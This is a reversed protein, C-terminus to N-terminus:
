RWKLTKSEKDEKPPINGEPTYKLFKQVSRIKQHLIKSTNEKMKEAELQIGKQQQLHLNRPIYSPPQTEPKNNVTKFDVPPIIEKTLPFDTQLAASKERKRVRTKFLLYAAAALLFTCTTALLIITSITLLREM